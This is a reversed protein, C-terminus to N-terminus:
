KKRKRAKPKKPPDPPWGMDEATCVIFPTLRAIEADADRRGAAAGPDAPLEAAPSYDDAAPNPRNHEHAEGLPEYHKQFIEDKVTYLSGDDYLIVWDCKECVVSQGDRYVSVRDGILRHPMDRLSWAEKLAGWPDRGECTWHYADVIENSRRKYKM